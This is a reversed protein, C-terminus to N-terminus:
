QKLLELVAPCLKLSILNLSEDEKDGYNHSLKLIEGGKLNGLKYHSKVEIKSPSDPFSIM